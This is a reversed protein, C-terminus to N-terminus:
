HVELGDVRARVKEFPDPDNHEEHHIMEKVETTAISPLLRVFLLFLTLFLGMSGIFLSWDFFTTSYNGWSSPLFDRTLSVIFIVFRELWMGISVLISILFLMWPTQRVRRSWLPQIAILNCFILAWFAWGYDGFMRNVAMYREFEVGSYWAIFLEIFYGYVVIMGTGLMLKASNDLHRMTILHELRFLKRLPIALLLVMAFGAFVAGAVFYPPMITNNWGPLQAFAFDMAITSHVSLVLPFSIAALLLYARMYRQWNKSSGHWGLSLIAYLMRPIPNKARDRLTALDPVLGVFWFVISVSMYTGIAFLDWDLPSRFQPFLGHTNPYPLLWYFVWPRGLHLIPYIGACIVAFITMAEAFRNISTRWPQRFLLLAASILTGAHGIGIWWVFNVIPLAWAVPMNNGFIGVGTVILYIVTALFAALLPLAIGMGIFWWSPTKLPEVLVPTNVADDVGAYTQGHAMVRNTERLVARREAM